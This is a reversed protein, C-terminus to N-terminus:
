RESLAEFRMVFGALPWCVLVQLAGDGRGTPQLHTSSFLLNQQVRSMAIVSLSAHVVVEPKCPYMYQQTVLVNPGSSSALKKQLNGSYSTPVTLERGNIKYKFDAKEM